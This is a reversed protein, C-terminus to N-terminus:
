EASEKVRSKLWRGRLQNGHRQPSTDQELLAAAENLQGQAEYARALNYRAGASWPSGATALEPRGLWHAAIDYKGDDYSMLGVWYGANRKATTDVRRKDDSTDQEIERDTPRVSNSTYLQAAERHDNIVQEARPGLSEDETQRRGQFHRTRAKWLVPRSSFPEFALAERLRASKGLSLQDRLTRFPLDWLRVETIGPLSKLREALASPSAALSLRDDGTLKAELQRSRRTLEFPDAVVYAVVQKLREATVPYPADELDLQRLLADDEQVQKLTAVGQHDPGPLPLGLRTDFLYLQGDDLLAPLWFTADGAAERNAVKTPPPLALMVVDLGLQRALGAFVWARQEATGHGYLLVEWPRHAVGQEDAELQVNRVTWDFLAQARALNEFSDGRAWRSIDRLWVAEQLLRGDYPPFSPAALSEASIYPALRADARLQADLTDLLPDQRWDTKPDSQRLWQNLWAVIQALVKEDPSPQWGLPPLRREIYLRLQDRIEVLRDDVYRWIEIKAPLTVKANLGSEILLTHDDLVQAVILEMAVHRTLGRQRSEEDVTEDERVYYKLIDGSRVGLGRFRSNAEPVTVLNFPADPVNPNKTCIALVDNGDSSKTSDLVLIPQRLETDVGSPLDVLQGAAATLLAEDREAGRLREQRSQHATTTEAPKCGGLAAVVLMAGACAGRLVRGRERHPVPLPDPLRWVSLFARGLELRM